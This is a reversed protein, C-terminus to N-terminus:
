SPYPLLECLFQVTDAGSIDRDVDWQGTDPDCYMWRYIEALLRRMEYASMEDIEAIGTSSFAPIIVPPLLGDANPARRAQDATQGPGPVDDPVRTGLPDWRAQSFAHGEDDRDLAVQDTGDVDYDHVSVATNCGEPFQVDQVVGGRVLVVIPPNEAM